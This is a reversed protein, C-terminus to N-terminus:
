TDARRGVAVTGPGAGLAALLATVEELRARIEAPAPPLEYTRYHCAASLAVWTTRCQRAIDHGAYWELCLMRHKGIRTMRPTVQRWYADLAQELALRLLVAAARARLGPTLARATGAPPLLLRAADIVLDEPAVTM